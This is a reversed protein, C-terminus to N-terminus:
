QGERGFLRHDAEGGTSRAGDDLGAGGAAAVGVVTGERDAAIHQADVEGPKREVAARTVAAVWCVVQRDKAAAAVSAALGGSTGRDSAQVPALPSDEARKDWSRRVVAREAQAALCTVVDELRHRVRDRVGSRDMRDLLMREAAQAEAPALRSAVLAARADALANHPGWGRVRKDEQQPEVQQREARHVVAAAHPPDSCPGAAVRSDLGSAARAGSASSAELVALEVQRDVPITRAWARADANGRQQVAEPRGEAAATGKQQALVAKAEFAAAPVVEAAAANTAQALVADRKDVSNLPEM